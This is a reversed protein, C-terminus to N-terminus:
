TAAEEVARARGVNDEDGRMSGSRSARAASGGFFLAGILKGEAGGDVGTGDREMASSKPSSSAAGSLGAAMASSRSAVNSSSFTAASISDDALIECLLKPLKDPPAERGTPWALGASGKVELRSSM